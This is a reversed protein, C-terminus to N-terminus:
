RFSDLLASRILEANVAKQISVRGVEHPTIITIAGSQNKKDLNMTEILPEIESDKSLLTPLGYSQILSSIRECESDTLLGLLKAIKAEVVMGIAVAEGHKYTIYGTTTELAHAVTHGYNLIARLGAEREDTSVIKAKIECSTKIITRLCDRDRKLIDERHDHLYDFLGRDWIVAYKIVEALGSLYEREPLTLLTDTDIYVAVPQHFTGIMNKGLHHNVGTKGGVSSDVQALLTTPIQVFAIGRMYVSATFGTLDGIVGGGLAFLCSKRDLRNYLMETLIHSAWLLDKYEEGDPILLPKCDIGLKKLTGLASDGYINFVTPNSVLMGKSPRGALDPLDLKKALFGNGVYVNYSRSGLNVSVIEM